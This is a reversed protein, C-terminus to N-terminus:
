RAFSKPTPIKNQKTGVPSTNGMPEDNTTKAKPTKGGAITFDSRYANKLVAHDYPDAGYDNSLDKQEKNPSPYNTDTLLNKSEKEQTSREQDISDAYKRDQMIVKNPDLGLLQAIQVIQPPTAPYNFTVDVFTMKENTVNPFDALQKQVPTTKADSMKIVDFQELKQKLNKFIESDVEGAIKIRYDYTQRSEILYEALTKM